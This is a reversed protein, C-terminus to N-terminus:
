PAGPLDLTWNPTVLHFSDWRRRWTEAVRDRELVVHEVGLSLLQHSVALGAQGAGIVVFSV